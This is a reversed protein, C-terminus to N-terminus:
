SKEVEGTEGKFGQTNDETAVLKDELLCMDFDMLGIALEIDRKWKM